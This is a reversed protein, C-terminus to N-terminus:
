AYREQRLDESGYEVGPQYMKELLGKYWIAKQLVASAKYSGSLGGVGSSSRKCYREQRRHYKRPVSFPQGRPFLM